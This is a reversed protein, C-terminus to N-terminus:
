NILVHKWGIIVGGISVKVLNAYDKDLLHYKGHKHNMIIRRAFKKPDMWLDNTYNQEAIDVYGAETNVGVIVGVHGYPFDPLSIKYIILDGVEPPESSPNPKAIFKYKKDDSLNSVYDLDWIQEANDVDGFRLHKLVILWRRAYEVCQWSMGSYINDIVTAPVKSICDNNCNSYAIVNSNMGLVSGFPRVCDFSCSKPLSTSFGVNVLGVVSLLLLFKKKFFKILRQLM